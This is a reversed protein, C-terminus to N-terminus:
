FNKPEIEKGDKKEQEVNYVNMNKFFYVKVIFIRKMITYQSIYQLTKRKNKQRWIILYKNKSINSLKRNKQTLKEVLEFSQEAIIKLLIISRIHM